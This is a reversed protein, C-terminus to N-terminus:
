HIHMLVCYIYIYITIVLSVIYVYLHYKNSAQLYSSDLVSVFIFLMGFIIIYMFTVHPFYLISQAGFNVCLYVSIYVYYRPNELLRRNLLAQKQLSIQSSM